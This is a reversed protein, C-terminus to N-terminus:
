VYGANANKKARETDFDKFLGCVSVVPEAESM